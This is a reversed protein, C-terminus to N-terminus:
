ISRRSIEAPVAFAALYWCWNSSIGLFSLAQVVFVTVVALHLFGSVM